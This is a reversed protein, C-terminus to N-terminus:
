REVGYVGRQVSFQKFDVWFPVQIIKNNCQKFINQNINLCDVVGEFCVLKLNLWLLLTEEENFISGVLNCTTSTKLKIFLLGNSNSVQDLLFSIHHKPMLHMTSQRGDFRLNVFHPRKNGDPAKSKVAAMSSQILAFYQLNVDWTKEEDICEQLVNM